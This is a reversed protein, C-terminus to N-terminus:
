NPSVQKQTIAKSFATTEQLKTSLAMKLEVTPDKIHNIRFYHTTHDHRYYDPQFTRGGQMLTYLNGTTGTQLGNPEVVAISALRSDINLTAETWNTIDTATMAFPGYMLTGVWATELQHGDKSAIKAPLKDPGYDIHKTFPM